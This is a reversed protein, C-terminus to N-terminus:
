RGNEWVLFGFVSGIVRAGVAAGALGFGFADYGSTFRAGTLLGLIGGVLGGVAGGSAVGLNIAALKCLFQWIPRDNEPEADRQQKEPM